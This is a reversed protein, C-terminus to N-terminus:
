VIKSLGKYVLEMMLPLVGGSILLMGILGIVVVVALVRGTSVYGKERTAGSEDSFRMSGGSLLAIFSVDFFANTRDLMLAMLLLMAYTILCIGLFVLAIRANDYTVVKKSLEINNRIASVSYTESTSLDEVTPLELGSQGTLLNSRHPMGRLDWETVITRGMSDVNNESVSKGEGDGNNGKKINVSGYSFSVDKGVGSAREPADAIKGNYMRYYAVKNTGAATTINYKRSFLTTHGSRGWMELCNGAQAQFLHKYQPILLKTFNYTVDFHGETSDNGANTHQVANADGVVMHICTGDTLIVDFLQGRNEISFPFFASSNNYFFNQIASVYYKQGKSDTLVTSNTEDYSATANGFYWLGPTGESNVYGSIKFDKHAEPMPYAYVSSTANSSSDAWGGIERPTLEYPVYCDYYELNKYSNPLKSDGYPNKMAKGDNDITYKGTMKNSSSKKKNTDAYVSHGTLSILSLVM